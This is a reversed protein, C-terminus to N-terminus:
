PPPSPAPRWRRLRRAASLRAGSRPSARTSQLNQRWRRPAGCSAEQPVPHLQPTPGVGDRWSRKAGLQQVDLPELVVRAVQSGLDLDRWPRAGAAAAVVAADGVVGAGQALSVALQAVVHVAALGH